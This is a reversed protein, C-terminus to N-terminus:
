SPPTSSSSVPLTTVPAPDASLLSVIEAICVPRDGSDSHITFRSVIRVGSDTPTYSILDVVARIRSGVLVPAPFRVRESGYNIGMTVDGIRYAEQGLVTVMSLTLYGHVITQRYPGTKARSEDVHIWQHDSTLDAFRDVMEQTIQHWASRGLEQGVMSELDPLHAFTTGTAGDAGDAM